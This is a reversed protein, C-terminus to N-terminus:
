DTRSLKASVTSNDSLTADVEMLLRGTPDRLVRAVGRGRRGEFVLRGDRIVIKGKGRSVGIPEQASVVDYSGDERITLTIQEPELESKRYVAGQWTGTVAKIDSVAVPTIPGLSVCGVLSAALGVVFATLVSGLSWLGTGTMTEGGETKAMSGNNFSGPLRRRGNMTLYHAIWITPTGADRALIADSAALGDVM